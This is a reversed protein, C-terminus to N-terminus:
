AAKMLRMRVRGGPMMDATLGGFAFYSKMEFPELEEGAADLHGVM